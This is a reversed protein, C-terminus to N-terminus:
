RDEDPPRQWHDAHTRDAHHAREDYGRRASFFMLAMLGAGVAFTLVAGLGLAIWGHTGIEVTGIQQWAWFGTVIALILLGLLVILTFASRVRHVKTLHVPEFL